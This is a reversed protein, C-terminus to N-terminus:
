GNRGQHDKEKRLQDGKGESKEEAEESDCKKNRKLQNWQPNEHENEGKQDSGVGSRDGVHNGQKKEQVSEDVYEVKDLFRSSRASGVRKWVIWCELAAALVLLISSGVLLQHLLLPSAPSPLLGSGAFLLLLMPLVSVAMGTLGARSVEPYEGHWASLFSITVFGLLLLHLYFIRPGHAGIWYGGPLLSGALVFLVATLLGALLLSGGSWSRQHHVIEWLLGAIGAMLLLAGARSVMLLEPTLMEASFGMPFTLPAGFLIPAIRWNQQLPNLDTIPVIRGSRKLYDFLIASASLIGWGQTFLALFLHTMSSSLLPSDVGGFQFLAVGWAGLSSVALMLLAGEYLTLTFSNALKTRVKLYRRIFGYWGLMVVGSLIVSLPLMASGIAVPRYGYLLFFPWSVAGAALILLIWNTMPRIAEPLTRGVKATLFMMPVPVAWSFFMLHSHAHRINSMSLGNFMPWLLESRYILGTTAALLFCALSLCWVRYLRREGSHTLIEGSEM